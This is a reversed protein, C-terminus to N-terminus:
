QEYPHICEAAGMYVSYRHMTELLFHGIGEEM